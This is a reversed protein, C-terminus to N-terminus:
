KVSCRRHVKKSYLVVLFVVLILMFNSKWKESMLFICSVSIVAVYYDMDM